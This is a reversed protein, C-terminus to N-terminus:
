PLEDFQEQFDGFVSGNSKRNGKGILIAVSDTGKKRSVNFCSGQFCCRDVFYLWHIPLKGAIQLTELHIYIYM